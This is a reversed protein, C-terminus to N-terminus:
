ERSLASRRADTSERKRPLSATPKTPLGYSNSIGANMEPWVRLDAIFRDIDAASRFPNRLFCSARRSKTRIAERNRAVAWKVIETMYRRLKTRDDRRRSAALVQFRAVTLGKHAPAGVPYWATAKRITGARYDALAETIGAPAKGVAFSWWGFLRYVRREKKVFVLYRRNTTHAKGVCQGFSSVVKIRESPRGKWVKEVRMAATITGEPFSWSSGRARVETVKLVFGVFVADVRMLEGITHGYDKPTIALSCAAADRTPAVLVMAGLALAAATIIPTRASRRGTSTAPLNRM